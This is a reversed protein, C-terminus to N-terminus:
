TTHIFTHPPKQRVIREPTVGEQWSSIPRRPRWDNTTTTTTAYFYYKYYKDDCLEYPRSIPRLSPRPTFYRLTYRLSRIYRTYYYLIIWITRGEEPVFLLCDYLSDTIVGATSDSVDHMRIGCSSTIKGNGHRKRWCQALTLEFMFGVRWKFYPKWASIM